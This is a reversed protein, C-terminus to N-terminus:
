AQMMAYLSAVERWLVHDNSLKRTFLRKLRQHPIKNALVKKYLSAGIMQGIERSIEYNARHDAIITARPVMGGPPEQDAMRPEMWKDFSLIANTIQRRQLSAGSLRQGRFKKAFQRHHHLELCKRRPNLIKSAIMGVANKIVRRLFESEPADRGSGTGSMTTHLYQGAAEALNNISLHTLLITKSRPLFYIGDISARAAIRRQEPEAVDQLGADEGFFDGNQSFHIQFSEMDSSDVTVGVFGALNKIFHLFQYDLDFSDETYLDIESDLGGEQDALSPTGASRMEEWISFTQWKMWPPSNMICFFDRKLRLYETTNHRTELQLDFYYRDVNNLIRLIDASEGHARMERDLSKPLHGDALHYEGIMCIIKHDPYRRAAAALQKAAFRDRSALDDKGANDSNIGIVPLQRQGAFDLIMKFNQWPFGWDSAYNISELFEAEPIKGALYGDIDDQDIAKFMELAIVVKNTRLRETYARLLRLLGRQSQRLTHFDGYLLFRKKRLDDLIDALTAQDFKRPLSQEFKKSYALLRGSAGGVISHAEEYAKEYLTRQLKRLKLVATSTM